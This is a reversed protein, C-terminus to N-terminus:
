NINRETTKLKEWAIWALKIMNNKIKNYRMYDDNILSM